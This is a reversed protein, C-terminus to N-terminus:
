KIIEYGWPKWLRVIEDLTDVYNVILNGLEDVPCLNYGKSVLWDIWNDMKEWDLFIYRVTKNEHINHAEIMFYEYVRTEM